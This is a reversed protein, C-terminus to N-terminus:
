AEKDEDEYAKEIARKQAATLKPVPLRNAVQMARWMVVISGILALGLGVFTYVNGTGFAKDLRVGALIPVLVVIALQWSMNLLMSLFLGRAATTQGAQNSVKKDSKGGGVTRNVSLTPLPAHSSKEMANPLIAALVETPL